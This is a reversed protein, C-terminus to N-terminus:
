IYRWTILVMSIFCVTIFTGGFIGLIAKFPLINKYQIRWFYISLPIYILLNSALAALPFAIMLNQLSIYYFGILMGIFTAGNVIHMKINNSLSQIQITYAGIREAFFAIIFIFLMEQHKHLTFVIEHSVLKFYVIMGILLSLGIYFQMCYNIYVKSERYLKDFKSQAYLKAFVPIYVNFPIQSLINIFTSIRLVLLYIALNEASIRSALIVSSLQVFGQSLIIAFGTKFVPKWILDSFNVDIKVFGWWETKRNSFLEPELRRALSRYKIFSIVVWIQQALIIAILSQVHLIALVLSCFQGFSIIAEWKKFTHIHGLGQLSAGLTNSIFQVLSLICYIFLCLSSATPSQTAGILTQLAIIGLLIGLFCGILGMVKAVNMQQQLIKVQSRGLNADGRTYSLVRVFTPSLGFDLLQILINISVLIQWLSFEASPLKAYALPIVVAYTSTKTLTSMIAYAIPSNFLKKVEM